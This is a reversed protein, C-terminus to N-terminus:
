PVSRAVTAPSTGASRCEPDDSCPEEPTRPTGSRCPRWCLRLGPCGETLSHPPPSAPLSVQRDLRHLERQRLADLFDAPSLEQSLDDLSRGEDLLRRATVPGVGRVGPMSDARDGVLAVYDCWRSPHIGYREVVTNETIWGRRLGQASDWQHVAGQLLQHFDKDRSIVISRRGAVRDRDVLTAIVDDAESADHTVHTIGWHNLARLIAPLHRFPNSPSDPPEARREARYRADLQTRPSRADADFIVLADTPAVPSRHLAQRMLALFGFTGTIDQGRRTRIRTPFGFEARYLMQAGDVYAITQATM